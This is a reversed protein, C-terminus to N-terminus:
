SGAKRACFRTHLGRKVLSAPCRCENAREIIATIAAVEPDVPGTNHQSCAWVGEEGEPNQRFLSVGEQMGRGCVICKM